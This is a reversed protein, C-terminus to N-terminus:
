LVSFLVPSPSSVLEDHYAHGSTHLGADKGMVIKPGLETLRNLMKMVRSENGPIVQFSLMYMVLDNAIRAILIYVL